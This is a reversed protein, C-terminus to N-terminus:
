YYRYHGHRTHYGGRYYGGSYCRNCCRDPYSYEVDYDRDCCEDYSRDCCEDYSYSRECCRDCRRECCDGRNWFFASVPQSYFFAASLLVLLTAKSLTKM